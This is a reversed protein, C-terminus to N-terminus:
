PLNISQKTKNQKKGLDLYTAVEHVCLTPSVATGHDRVAQAKGALNTLGSKRNELWLDAGLFTHLPFAAEVHRLFFLVKKEKWHFHHSTKLTFGM